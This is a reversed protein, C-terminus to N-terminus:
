PRWTEEYDPHHAYPLALLALIEPACIDDIPGFPQLGEVIRRKADCEAIVRDTVGCLCATMHEGMAYGCRAEHWSARDYDSSDSFDEDDGTAPVPRARRALAEDEAIRAWLFEVLTM